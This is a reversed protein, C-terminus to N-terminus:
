ATVRPRVSALKERSAYIYSDQPMLDAPTPSRNSPTGVVAASLGHMGGVSSATDKNVGAINSKAGGAKTSTHARRWNEGKARQDNALAPERTATGSM